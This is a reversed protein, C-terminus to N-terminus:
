PPSKEAGVPAGVHHDAKCSFPLKSASCPPGESSNGSVQDRCPTASSSTLLQSPMGPAQKPVPSPMTRKSPWQRESSALSLATCKSHRLLVRHRPLWPWPGGTCPLWRLLRRHESSAKRQLPHAMPRRRLPRAQCCSHNRCPHQEQAQRHPQQPPDHGHHPCHEACHVPPGSHRGGNYLSDSPTLGSGRLRGIMHVKLKCASLSVLLVAMSDHMNNPSM